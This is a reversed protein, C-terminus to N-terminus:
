RALLFIASSRRSPRTPSDPSSLIWCVSSFSALQFPAPGLCHAIPSSQFVTLILACESSDQQETEQLKLSRVLPKPNFVSTRGKQLATFTVQLQFLPADELKVASSSSSPVACQYVASRFPRNQFWVQLYSNAYCTAGLNKLGVLLDPNRQSAAPDSGLGLRRCYKKFAKAEDAWEESGGSWNLCGPRHECNKLTCASFGATRTGSPGQAAKSNSSSAVLEVDSNDSQVQRDAPDTAKGKGKEEKGNKCASSIQAQKEREVTEKKCSASPAALAGAYAEKLMVSTIQSPHQIGDDQHEEIFKDWSTKKRKPPM